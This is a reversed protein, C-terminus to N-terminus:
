ITPMFSRIFAMSSNKKKLHYSIINDNSLGQKAFKLSVDHSPKWDVFGFDSSFSAIWLFHFFFVM